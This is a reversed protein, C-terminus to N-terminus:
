RAERYGPNIEIAVEINPLRINPYQTPSWLRRRSQIWHIRQVFGTSEIIQFQCGPGFRRKEFRCRCGSVSLMGPFSCAVTGEGTGKLRATEANSGWMRFRGCTMPTWRRGSRGEVFPQNEAGVQHFHNEGWVTLWFICLLSQLGLIQSVAAPTEM